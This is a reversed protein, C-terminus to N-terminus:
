HRTLADCMFGVTSDWHCLVWFLCYPLSKLLLFPFIKTLNLQRSYLPYCVEAVQSNHQSIAAIKPRFADPRRDLICAVAVSRTDDNENNNQCNMCSCGDCYLGSSFCECYRGNYNKRRHTLDIIQINCIICIWSRTILLTFISSLAAIFFFQIVFSVLMGCTCPTEFM